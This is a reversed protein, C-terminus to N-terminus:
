EKSYKDNDPYFIGTWGGKDPTDAYNWGSYDILLQGM